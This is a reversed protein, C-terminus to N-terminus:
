RQCEKWACDTSSAKAGHPLITSRFRRTQSESQVIRRRHISYIGLPHRLNDAHTTGDSTALNSVLWRLIESHFCYSGRRNGCAMCPPEKDAGSRQCTESIFIPRACTVELSCLPSLRSYCQGYREWTSIYTGKPSFGIEVANPVPIEIVMSGDTANHIRVRTFLTVGSDADTRPVGVRGM